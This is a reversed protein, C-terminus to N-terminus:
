HHALNKNKEYLIQLGKLLLTEDYIANRRCYPTVLAALGGTTVMTCKQNLAEEVRDAIGDLIAAHGYVAGSRMCEETSTGILFRPQDFSISPLYSTRSSLADVSLRLGPMIMGGLYDGKESIVSLTTATGMDFVLVPAPYQAYAAVADVVLDSGLQAPNDYRINLGTRLGPGVLLPPRGLVTALAQRFVPYLVPVVSSVISGELEERGVHYLSLLQILLMAYEEPTKSRGTSLRATFNLKDGDLCGVVINTNGIDVTLLIATEEGWEPLGDQGTKKM